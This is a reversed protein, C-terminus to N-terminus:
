GRRNRDCIRVQDEHHTREAQPPVQRDPCLFLRHDRRVCRCCYRCSPMALCPPYMSNLFDRNPNRNEIYGAAELACRLAKLNFKTPSSAGLTYLTKPVEPRLFLRSSFLAGWLLSALDRGDQLEFLRKKRNVISCLRPKRCSFGDQNNFYPACYELVKCCHMKSM